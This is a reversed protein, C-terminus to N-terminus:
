SILTLHRVSDNGIGAKKNWASQLEKAEKLIFNTSLM